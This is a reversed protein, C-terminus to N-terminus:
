EKELYKLEYINKLIEILCCENLQNIENKNKIDFGINIFLEIKGEELTIFEYYRQHTIIEDLRYEVSLDNFNNKDYKIILILQSKEDLLPKISKLYQDFEEKILNELDLFNEFINDKKLNNIQEIYSKSKHYFDRDFIEPIKLDRNFRYNFDEAIYCSNIPNTEQIFQSLLDHMEEIEIIFTYAKEKYEKFLEVVNGDCYDIKYKFEPSIAEFDPNIKALNNFILLRNKIFEVEQISNEIRDLALKKDKIEFKELIIRTSLAYRDNADLSFYSIDNASLLCIKQNNEIGINLILFFEKHPKGEEDIIYKKKIYHYTKENSSFKAQIIGFRPPINDLINQNTIKRQIIFDAGNKDISRELIWFRDILFSKTRAEGISGNDARIIGINETERNNEM